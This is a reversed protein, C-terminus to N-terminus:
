AGLHRDVAEHAKRLVEVANELAACISGIEPDAEFKRLAMSTTEVLALGSNLDALLKASRDVRASTDTSSYSSRVHRRSTPKRSSRSEGSRPAPFAARVTPAAGHARAAKAISKPAAM